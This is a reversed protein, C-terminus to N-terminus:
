IGFDRDLTKRVEKFVSERATKFAAFMARGLECDERSMLPPSDILDVQMTQTTHSALKTSYCDFGDAVFLYLHALHVETGDYEDPVTAKFDCEDCVIVRVKKM